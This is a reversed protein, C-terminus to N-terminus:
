NRIGGSPLPTIKVEIQDSATVKVQDLTGALKAAAANRKAEEPLRGMLPDSYPLVKLRIKPWDARPIRWLPLAMPDGNYFHDDFFRDGVYLRAADGVYHLDLLIRHGDPVNGPLELKYVSADKWTAEDTGTLSAANAGAPTELTATIAAALTGGSARCSLRAFIGDAGADIKM